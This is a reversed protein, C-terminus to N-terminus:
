LMGKDIRRYRAYKDEPSYKPPHVTVPNYGCHKESMTFSSCVTCRKIKKPIM